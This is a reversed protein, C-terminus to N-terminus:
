GLYGSEQVIVHAPTLTAEEITVGRRRLYARVLHYGVAYGGFDPMGLGTDFQMAAAISDGFIYARLQDFGTAQWGDGVLRRATELDDASIQTVYYGLVDEGYLDVAFAEALGEMVVYEAVDTTAMDWPFAALRVRHNFEHAVAGPAKTVNSADPKDYTVVVFGPMQYGAYGGGIASTPGPRILMITGTVDTEVSARPAYPLFRDIARTLAEEGQEWANVSELLALGDPESELDEPMLWLMARAQELPDTLHPSFRRTMELSGQMPALLDARFIREREAPDAAALMARYVKNTHIWQM